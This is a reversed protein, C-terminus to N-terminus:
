TPNSPSVNGQITGAAVGGGSASINVDRGAAVGHGSASVSREPLEAEIRDILIQLDAAADPHEELLDILRTQWAAELRTRAQERESEPVDELQERTDDLRREALEEREHDGRGLLRAFGRKASEWVDTTAAAVLTQGALAALALLELPVECEEGGNTLL